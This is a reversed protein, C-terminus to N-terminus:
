KNFLHDKKFTDGDGIQNRITAIKFITHFEDPKYATGGSLPQKRQTGDPQKKYGTGNWVCVNLKAHLYVSVTNADLIATKGGNGTLSKQLDRQAKKVLLDRPSLEKQEKVKPASPAIVSKAKTNDACKDATKKITKKKAKKDKKDM